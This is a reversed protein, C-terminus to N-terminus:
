APEGREKALERKAQECDACFPVGNEAAATLTAAQSKATEEREASSPRGGDVNRDAAPHPGDSPAASRAPELFVVIRGDVVKGDDSAAYKPM